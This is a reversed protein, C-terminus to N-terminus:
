IRGRHPMREQRCNTSESTEMGTVCCHRDGISNVGLFWVTANLFTNLLNADTREDASMAM